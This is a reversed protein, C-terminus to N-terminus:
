PSAGAAPWRGQGKSRKLCASFGVGALTALPPLVFLFHRMGTFAPGHVAGPVGAPFDITSSVLALDRRRRRRGDPPAGSAFDHSAGRRGAHDAARPDPSPWSCLDAACRGDRLYAGCVDYPHRLSIRLLCVTRPDSQAAVARGVALGVIMILYALAVAPSTKLAAAALRLRAGATSAGRCIFLSQSGSICLCCCVLAECGLRPALWFVSALLMSAHAAVAIPPRHPRPVANRGDDRCCVSHGQYPQVHRRVM